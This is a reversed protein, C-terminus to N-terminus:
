RGDSKELTERLVVIMQQLDRREDQGARKAAELRAEHARQEAVMAERMARITDKLEAIERAADAVASQIDRQKDFQLRELAERLAFVDERLSRIEAEALRMEDPRKETSVIDDRAM